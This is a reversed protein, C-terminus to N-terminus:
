TEKAITREEIMREIAEVQYRCQNGIKIFDIRNESRMRQLTRKSVGLMKAADDNTLMPKLGKGTLNEQFAMKALRVYQVIETLQETLKKFAASEMTIVEMRIGNSINYLENNKNRPPLILWKRL